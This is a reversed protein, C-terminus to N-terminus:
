GEVWAYITAGRARATEVRVLGAVAGAPGAGVILVDDLFPRQCPAQDCGLVTSSRM